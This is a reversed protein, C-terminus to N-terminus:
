TDKVVIRGKNLELIREGIGKIKTLDQPNKFPGNKDRFEVIRQAYTKGIGELTMLKEVNATNINVIGIEESIAPVAWSMVLAMTLMTAFIMTARKM